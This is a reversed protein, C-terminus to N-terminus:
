KKVKLTAIVDALFALFNSGAGVSIGLLITAAFAPIRNLFSWETTNVDIGSFAVAAIGAFMSFLLLAVKRTKESWSQPLRSKALETVRNVSASLMLLMELM